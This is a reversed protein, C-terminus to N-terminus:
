RQREALTQKGEQQLILGKVEGRDNKEFSVESNLGKLSFKRDTEPRLEIPSQGTIKLFLSSKESTVTLHVGSKATYEGAYTKLVEPAIQITEQDEPFYGPWKYERAIAREIENLM